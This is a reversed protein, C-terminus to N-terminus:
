GTRIQWDKSCAMEFFDKPGIETNSGPELDEAYLRIGATQFEFGGQDQVLIRKQSPKYHGDLHLFDQPMASCARPMPYANQLYRCSSSERRILRLGWLLGVMFIGLLRTWSGKSVTSHGYQLCSEEM